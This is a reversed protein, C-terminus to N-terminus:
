HRNISDKSHNLLLHKYTDESLLSLAFDLEKDDQIILHKYKEDSTERKAKEIAIRSLIDEKSTVIIQKISKWLNDTLINPDIGYDEFSSKLKNSEKALFFNNYKETKDLWEIFTNIDINTIRNNELYNVFEFVLSSAVADEVIYEFKYDSYSTDPSIGDSELVPRGGETYFISDKHIVNEVHKGGFGSKQICRGSPTFYRATTIKMEAKNPLTIVSQVLGKGFSKRGLIVGRDHDQIAGALVESASASGEDILVALPLNPYEPTDMVRYERKSRAAYGKTKVIVDGRPLFMECINVAASLLGGPNGRLDLVLGNLPVKSSLERLAAKFETLTQSTFRTLKIYAVDGKLLDYFDINPVTIVNRTLLLDLTDKEALKWVRFTSQSGAEGRTYQKLDGAKLNIVRNTDISVIRDGPKIGSNFASYGHVVDTITLMSDITKVSFGFGVYTGHTLFEINDLDENDYYETYKDLGSTIGDVADKLLLDPDTKVVYNASVAEFVASFSDFAENIKLYYLDAAGMFLVATITIIMIKLKSSKM